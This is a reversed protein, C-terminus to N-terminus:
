FKANVGLIISRTPPTALGVTITGARIATNNAGQPNVGGGTGTGEPDIGLGASVFPSYLIFPNQATLYIRMSQMGIRKAVADPASYGINISRVRIFSADYYGLTSSFQKRDNNNPIPFANTANVPTWYDVKPQNSRGTGFGFYGNGTGDNQYYTAILTGGMRAFTVVSLDFNKFSVRNTMGGIWDPQASGIVSMDDPNIVGDNNLDAIRIEGPTSAYFSSNYRAAEEAQEKQWIGLKTYDYIASIPFGVFLGNQIDRQLTPDQLQVVKDRAVSFNVDTSFEFGGPQSAKVLIASLLVEIGNGETKAANTWFNNAGNSRPLQKQILLGDTKQSYIDVSGTIRNEFIGFDLGFNTTQTSEWRIDRNPLSTVLVGNVLNPGFNYRTNTSLGGLYAATPIDQQGTTGYGARLKLVNIFNVNSLFQEDALNWGLSVAPYNLWTGNPFISSGDRRFTFTLLYKGDFSYNVRGMYSALGRRNFSGGTGSVYGVGSQGLNLGYFQVFDAPLQTAQLTGSGTSQDQQVSYLATVGIRHREGIMRDYSLLNEVTYTWADGFSIRARNQTPEVGGPNMITNPGLYEGYNEQRFDLGVNVRYKLGKLIELEGYLSNFTRLRRRLQVIAESDKMTLPNASAFEDVTGVLPRLNISGDANYVSLAPNIRLTNYIPALGEGHTNGLSNMSNLGVRIRKGIKADVTARLAYRDFRQGPLVGDEQFYSGGISYAATESGGSVNLSHNTISGSKYLYDQWNTNVGNALGEVEALSLTNYGAIDRLTEFEQASFVEYQGIVDSLGYYGDYSLVAKGAKGKKTSILIVGNSGRSGYIATASADKLVEISAIDDPNLDNISGGFPIGDVVIFPDNSAFLSRNGRIRIQGASGPRTGDRAIDVGPLRGQLAQITNAAPVERLQQESVSAISGTVDRKRSTGYGVVVIEQLAVETLVFDVRTRGGIQEDTAQYGTYSARLTSNPPADLAYNGDADTVTGATSGVVIVTAFPLVQGSGDSVKGQVRIDQAPLLQVSLILLTFAFFSQLRNRFSKHKLHKEACLPLRLCTAM